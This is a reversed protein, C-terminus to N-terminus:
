LPARDEAKNEGRWLGEVFARAPSFVRPSWWRSPWQTGACRAFSSRKNELYDNLGKQVKELLVNAQCLPPPVRPPPVLGKSSEYSGIAQLCKAITVGAKAGQLWPAFAILIARQRAPIPFFLWVESFQELCKETTTM